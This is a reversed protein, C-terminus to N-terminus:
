EDCENEEELRRNVADFRNHWWTANDNAEKLDTKLQKIERQLSNIYDIVDNLEKENLNDGWCCSLRMRTLVKPEENNM